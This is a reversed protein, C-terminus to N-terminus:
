QFIRSVDNYMALLMFWGIVVIGVISSVYVARQSLARGRFLEVVCFMFHGGDLMPIPLMNIVALSISILALFGLFYEVGSQATRGAFKAISIPGAVNQLSVKGTIMKGIFQFSLATYEGTRHLAMTFAPWPAFRETRLLNEPIPVSAFQIGIRGNVPAIMFNIDQDGRKILLHVAAEKNNQLLQIFQSRNRIQTTGLGIIKDGHQLGASEAPTGPLVKDVIPMTPDFPVLGLGQLIRQEDKDNWTNLNLLYTHNQTEGPKHVEVSLLDHDGVHSSIAVAIEEWNAVKQQDIGVIEQGSRLGATYAISTKPVEGLIPVMATIGWMFVVWYAIIAFLINFLPGAALVLMRAWVPKHSFSLHRDHAAVANGDGQGLINVYGGLPFPAIAYETGKRDYVSFLPKGWGISFRTVKMGLRRAVWFHGFEHVLALLGIAVIFGLISYLINIM